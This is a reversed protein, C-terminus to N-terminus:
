RVGAPPVKTAPSIGTRESVYAPLVKQQELHMCIEALIMIDGPFGSSCVYRNNSSWCIIRIHVQGFRELKFSQQLIPHYVEEFGLKIFGIEGASQSHYSRIEDQGQM